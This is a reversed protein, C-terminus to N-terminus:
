GVKTDFLSLPKISRMNFTMVAHLVVCLDYHHEVLEVNSDKQELALEVLSTPGVMGAWLDEINHM